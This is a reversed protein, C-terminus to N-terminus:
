KLFMNVGKFGNIPCQNYEIKDIFSTLLSYDTTCHRFQKGVDIIIGDRVFNCM